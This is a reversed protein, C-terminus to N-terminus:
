DELDQYFTICVGALDRVSFERTGCPTDKVSTLGAGVGLEFPAIDQAHYEQHLGSVDSVQIRFSTQSAVYADNQNVIIIEVSSRELMNFSLDAEQYSIEFGLKDQYFALTAKIDEGSSITPTLKGLVITSNKM